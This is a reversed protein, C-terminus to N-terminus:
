SLNFVVPSIFTRSKTLGFLEKALSTTPKSPSPTSVNPNSLNKNGGIGPCPGQMKISVAGLVCTHKMM